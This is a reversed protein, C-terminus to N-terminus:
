QPLYGKARMWDGFVAEIAPQVGSALTEVFSGVRGDTFHKPHLLIEIDEKGQTPLPLAEVMAAVVSPDTSINLVAAVKATAAVKDKMIDAYALALDAYPEWRDYESVVAKLLYQTAPIPANAILGRRIASAVVDRLDRYTLLVKDAGFLWSEAFRHVKVIDAEIPKGDDNIQWTDEFRGRTPGQLACLLRVTNYLWTSGSRRMGACVVKM